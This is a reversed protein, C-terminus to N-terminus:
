IYIEGCGLWPNAGIRGNEGNVEKWVFWNGVLPFSPTIAKWVISVNISLNTKRELANNL